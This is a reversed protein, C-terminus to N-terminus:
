TNGSLNAVGEGYRKAWALVKDGGNNGKLGSRPLICGFTSQRNFDFIPFYSRTPSRRTRRLRIAILL